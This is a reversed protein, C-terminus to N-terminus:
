YVNYLLCPGIPVDEHPRPQNARPAEPQPYISQSYSGILALPKFAHTPAPPDGCPTGRAFRCYTPLSPSAPFPLFQSNLSWIKRSNIFIKNPHPLIRLLIRGLHKNTRLTLARVNTRGQQPFESVINTAQNLDIGVATAITPSTEMTPSEIRPGHEVCATFTAARRNQLADRTPDNGLANEQAGKRQDESKPSVTALTAPVVEKGNAGHETM